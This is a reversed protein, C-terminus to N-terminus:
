TIMIDYEKKKDFIKNKEVFNVLFFTLLKETVLM